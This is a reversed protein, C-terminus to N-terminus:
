IPIYGRGYDNLALTIFIDLTNEMLDYVTPIKHEINMENLASDGRECLKRKCQKYKIMQRKKSVQKSQVPQQHYGCTLAYIM